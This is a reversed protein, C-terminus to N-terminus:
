AARGRAAVMFTDLAPYGYDAGLERALKAHLALLRPWRALRRATAGTSRSFDELSPRPGRCAVGSREFWRSLGRGSGGLLVRVSAGVVGAGCVVVHRPPTLAPPPEYSGTQDWTADAGIGERRSRSTSCYPRNEKTVRELGRRLATELEQGQSPRVRWARRARWGSTTSWPRASPSVPISATRAGDQQRANQNAWNHRVIQYSENNSVVILMATKYRAEGSAWRAQLRAGGDGTCCSRGERGVAIKAGIAAGLASASGLRGAPADVDDAQGYPLLTTRATSSEQVMVTERPLV